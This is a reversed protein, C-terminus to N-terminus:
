QTGNYINIWVANYMYTAVSSIYLGLSILLSVKMIRISKRRYTRCYKRLLCEEQKDILILMFMSIFLTLACIPNIILFPINFRHHFGKPYTIYSIWLVIGLIYSAVIFPIGSLHYKEWIPGPFQATKKKITELESTNDKASEFEHQIWNKLKRLWIQIKWERNLFTLSELELEPKM